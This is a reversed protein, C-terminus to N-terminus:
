TEAILKSFDSQCVEMLGLVGGGEMGTYSGSEMEPGLKAKAGNVSAVQLFSASKRDLIQIARNDWAIPGEQQPMPLTVAAKEYFDKLLAIAQGVAAEATKADSLTASNKEKEAMRDQTATAVAADVEAMEVGLQGIESALKAVDATLEEIDAKLNDSQETKKDRTQKNMGMEKDCFGKHEAEANAEETLKLIMDKM